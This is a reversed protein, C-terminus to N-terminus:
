RPTLELVIFLLHRLTAEHATLKAQYDPRNPITGVAHSQMSLIRCGQKM